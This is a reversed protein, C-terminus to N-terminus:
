TTAELYSTLYEQWPRRKLGLARDIRSCDFRSNLPRRAPAPFEASSCPLVEVDLGRTAVIHKAVDFRSAHGAAALHYIGTLRAEILRAITESVLTTPTPAGVQDAVVKLSPRSEALELIKSVFHRGHRGYTWQVRLIAGKCHSTLVGFEGALKSEGYASLPAVPDSEAYPAESDGNFVFDTSVHVLYIGNAAALRALALVADGNVAMALDPESEAKDVNTYAACNVVVDVGRVMSELHGTNTLDFEPLDYGRVEHGADALCPVLDSGLM